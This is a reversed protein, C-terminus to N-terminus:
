KTTTGETIKVVDGLGSLAAKVHGDVVISTGSVTYTYSTGGIKFGSGTINSFTVNNVTVTSVSAPTFAVVSAIKDAKITTTVIVKTANKAKASESISKGNIKVSGNKDVTATYNTGNLDVVVESDRSFKAIKDIDDQVKDVNKFEVTVAVKAKDVPAVTTIDKKTDETSPKVPSTNTTPKAKVEVTCTAKKNTGDTSQVTITTKGVKKATVVGKSSVTAVDTKSSTWKLTKNPKKGSVNAKATLNLKSGVYVTATTKNLKVSKVKGAVVKVTVKAKKKSNTKSTVTIKATGTKKKSATIVGKSNVTAVKKNSTKFTVKKNKAKLNSGKVKYSLTAKKGKTLTITKSGTLKNTATVSTVKAKKSAADATTGTGVTLSAVLATALVLTKVIKKMKISEGKDKKINEM